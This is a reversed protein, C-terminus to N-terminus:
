KSSSTLRLAAQARLRRAARRRQPRGPFRLSLYGGPPALGWTTRWTLADGGRSVGGGAARMVIRRPREALAGRMIRTRVLAPVMISRASWWPLTLASWGAARPRKSVGVARRLLRQRGLLSYTPRRMRLATIQLSDGPQRKRTVAAPSPSSGFTSPSRCKGASPKSICPTHRPAARVQTEYGLHMQTVIPASPRASKLLGAM